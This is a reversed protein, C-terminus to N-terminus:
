AETRMSTPSDLQRDLELWGVSSTIDAFVTAAGNESNLGPALREFAGVVGTSTWMSREVLRAGWRILEKERRDAWALDSLMELLVVQGGYMGPRRLAGNLRSRSRATIEDASRGPGSPAFPGYIDLGLSLGLEGFGSLVEPAVTPGGHGMERLLYCFVDGRHEARQLVVALRARIESVWGVLYRLHESLDPSAVVGKTSLAWLGERYPAAGGSRADGARHCQTPELGVFASVEAPDLDPGFV